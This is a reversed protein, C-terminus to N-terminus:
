AKSLTLQVPAATGNAAEWRLATGEVGAANHKRAARQPDLTLVVRASSAAPAELPPVEGQVTIADPKRTVKFAELPRGVGDASTGSAVALQPLLVIDAVEFRATSTSVSGQHAHELAVLTVGEPLAARTREELAATDQTAGRLLAEVALGVHRRHEADPLPPEGAALRASRVAHDAVALVDLQTQLTM